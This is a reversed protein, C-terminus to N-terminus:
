SASSVPTAAAPLCCEARGHAAPVYGERGGRLMVWALFDADIYNAFNASFKKKLENYLMSAYTYRVCAHNYQVSAHNYLM